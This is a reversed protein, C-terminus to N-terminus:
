LDLLKNNLELKMLWDNQEDNGVMFVHEGFKKFGFKKYFDIAKFNHEWVGLYISKKSHEKAFSIAFQMLAKGVGSGIKASTVYIRAIELVNKKTDDADNNLSLKLYGAVDEATKAFFFFNLPDTMENQLVSPNFTSDLFYHMNEITNQRYYTDYFTKRSIDTLLSLEDSRIPEIIIKM